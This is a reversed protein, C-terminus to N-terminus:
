ATPTLSNRMAVLTPLDLSQRVADDGRALLVLAIALLRDSKVGRISKPYFGPVSIRKRREGSTERM